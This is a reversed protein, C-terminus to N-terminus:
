EQKMGEERSVSQHQLEQKEQLVWNEEWQVVDKEDLYTWIWIM